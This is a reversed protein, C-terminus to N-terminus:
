IRGWCYCYRFCFDRSGHYITFCYNPQYIKM